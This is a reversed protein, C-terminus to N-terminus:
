DYFIWSLGFKFMAENRPYHLVSFYNKNLWNYNLHEYKFFFRTRKLLVNLFVDMYPYNGLKKENQQHFVGLAPNYANAYYESNYFLDFGLMATFGGDTLKFYFKHKIFTSNYAIFVPLSLYDTKNVFQYVVKNLSGIKWFEFLKLLHSSFVSLNDEYQGPLANNDFYIYNKFLNYEIGAEFKESSTSYMVSLGTNRIQKFNNNWTFYNSYFNQLIYYPTESKHSLSFYASSVNNRGKLMITYDANLCYDGAKYGGLFYEARINGGSFTSKTNFISFAVSTNSMIETRDLSDIWYRYNVNRFIIATDGVYNIKDDSPTYYNFRLQDYSIDFSINYNGNKDINELKFRLINSLEGFYVSDFTNEPNLYINSYFDEDIGTQPNKDRHIRKIMDYKLIYGIAPLFRRKNIIALTDDTELRSLNYEQVLLFSLNNIATLVDPDHKNGQDVGGFVTPIDTTFQFTSDTILTDNTVGGNEDAKIRNININSYLKYKPREYSTFIKIANNVIKQFKYQGRSSILKYRIGFNLYRNINQTHYAELTEEKTDQDGGNTYKLLTFPKRTNIYNTNQITSMYPYFVNILPFTNHEIRDSFVNSVAPSGINGLFSNSISYKFIPNYVHFLYLLTDVKAEKKLSYNNNLSWTYILPITDNEAKAQFCNLIIFSVLIKIVLFKM